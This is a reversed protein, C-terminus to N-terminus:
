DNNANFFRTFRFFSYVILVGGLAVRYNTPMVIPFNKWFIIITGLVLYGLFFLIGIILLIPLIYNKLEMNSNFYKLNIFNQLQYKLQQLAINMDKEDLGLVNNEKAGAHGM